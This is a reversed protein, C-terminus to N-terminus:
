LINLPQYGMQSRILPHLICRVMALPTIDWGTFTIVMTIVVLLGLQVGVTQLLHYRGTINAPNYVGHFSTWYGVM